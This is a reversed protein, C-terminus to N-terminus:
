ANELATVKSELTEIKTIAEQLCKVAKMYLISYKVGKTFDDEAIGCNDIEFQSPKTNKVLKDMGSDELDQAIVGIQVWAKDGYQSVDDKRKFNKVKLAKIDDWQSNADKIDTKIRKDSLQGYTGDHNQIDGDSYINLRDTVSDTFQLAKQTNNDPGAGSFQIIMGQPANTSTNKILFLENDSSREVQLPNAPTTTGIGVDGGKPNLCLPYHVQGADLACAQMWTYTDGGSQAGMVIGYDSTKGIAFHGATGGSTVPDYSSGNSVELLTRPATVGIGIEGDSNIRMREVATGSNDPTTWFSLDAPADTEDSGWDAPAHAKIIAGTEFSNGDSGQFYIQGLVTNATVGGHTGITGHRSKRFILNAGDNDVTYNDMYMNSGVGSAGSLHLRGIPALTGIGVYGSSNIVIRNTTGDRFHLSDNSLIEWKNNDDELVLSADALSSSGIHLFANASAPSSPSTQGIGVYGSENITMRTAPSSSATSTQFAIQGNDKNTTDDGAQMEISAVNNGAWTGKLVLLGQGDSATGRNGLLETQGSGTNKINIKSSTSSELELLFDPSDTGIGFNAGLVSIDGAGDFEIREADDAIGISTDDAMIINGLLTVNNSGDLTIGSTNSGGTKTSLIITQDNVTNKVYSHSGDSYVELDQDAGAKFKGSDSDIKIDAM